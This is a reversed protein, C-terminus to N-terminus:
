ESLVIFGNPALSTALMVVNIERHEVYSAAERHGRDLRFRRHSARYIRWTPSASAQGL